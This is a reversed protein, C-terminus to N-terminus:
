GAYYPRGKSQFYRKAIVLEIPFLRESSKITGRECSVQLEDGPELKVDGLPVIYTGNRRISVILTGDPLVLDQLQVETYNAVVPVKTQFFTQVSELHSQGTM